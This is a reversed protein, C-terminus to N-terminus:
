TINAPLKPASPPYQIRGTLMLDPSLRRNEIEILQPCAALNQFGTGGVARRATQGGLIKPALFSTFRHALQAELFSAHVEGGGEVLLSTVPEGTPSEGLHKMLWSLDIRGADVPAVLVHVRRALDAIRKAPAPEGVVVTTQRAFEDTLLQATLPTRARTDLILRRKCRTAATRRISLAPDDHLVTEVGVLIADNEQRLSHAARRAREGTIWKSDGAATAIKGDLTQAIKLTVWPTRHVIWHNFSENLRNAAAACVGSSVQIGAAKLIDLGRGAHHPNPDTAAVVVQRIGAAIIASTCPPTRGHTCCPELTVYLTSGQTSFGLRAADKLAEIEAHPQGARRHFGRGIIRGRRVLIAGVLPNPSTHGRARAALRLAQKLYHEAPPKM